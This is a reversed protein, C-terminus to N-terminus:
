NGYSSRLRILKTSNNLKQLFPLFPLYQLYQRFTDQVALWSASSFSLCNCQVHGTEQLAVIVYIIIISRELLELNAMFNHIRKVNLKWLGEYHLWRDLVARFNYRVGREENQYTVKTKSSLFCRLSLVPWGQWASRQKETGRYVCSLGTRM